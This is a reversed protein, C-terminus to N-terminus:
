FILFNGLKEFPRTWQAPGFFTPVEFYAGKPFLKTERKQELSVPCGAIL